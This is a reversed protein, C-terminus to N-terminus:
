VAVETHNLPLPKCVSRGGELWTDQDLFSRRRTQGGLGTGAFLPNILPPGKWNAESIAHWIFAAIALSQEILIMMASSAARVTAFTTAIFLLSLRTMKSRVRRHMMRLHSPLVVGWALDALCTTTLLARGHLTRSAPSLPPPPGPQLPIFFVSSLLWRLALAAPNGLKHTDGAAKANPRVTALHNLAQVPLTRM